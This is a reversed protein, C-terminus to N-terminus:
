EGLLIRNVEKQVAAYDYGAETLKKKRTAGNGWEGNIVEKALQNLSKKHSVTILSRNVINQITIYDYGAQELRKKRVVGVGWKGAIVERAIEENTKSVKECSNAFSSLRNKFDVWRHDDEVFPAPCNKHTVDYHRVVRDLPISYQKMLMKTLAVTHQITEEKIDLKGNNLYCCMEIGISNTNRAGCYYKNAGCHWSSDSDKVVRYIEKEDVFYHASSGRNKSKFYDANNKATSVAGVYHIVIYENKKKNGKGDGSWYNVTTLNEKINM